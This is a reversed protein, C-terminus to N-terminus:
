NKRRKASGDGSEIDDDGNTPRKLPQIDQVDMTTDTSPQGDQADMTADTSQQGDQANKTADTSQQGDVSTDKQVDEPQPELFLEPLPLVQRELGLWFLFLHIKAKELDTRHDFDFEMRQISYPFPPTGVESQLRTIKLLEGIFGNTLGVVISKRSLQYLDLAVFPYKVASAYDDATFGSRGNKTAKPYHKLELVTLLQQCDEAQIRSREMAVFDPALNSHYKSPNSLLCGKSHSDLWTYGTEPTLTTLLWSYVEQVATEMVGKEGCHKRPNPSKKKGKKSGRSSAEPDQETGLLAALFESKFVSDTQLDETEATFENVFDGGKLTEKECLELFIELLGHGILLQQTIGRWRLLLQRVKEDMKADKDESEGEPSSLSQRLFGLLQVDSIASPPELASNESKRKQVQDAFTVLGRGETHVQTGQELPIQVDSGRPRFGSGGGDDDDDDVGIEQKGDSADTRKSSSRVTRGSATRTPPALRQSQGLTEALQGLIINLVAELSGHNAEAAVTFETFSTKQAQTSVCGLSSSIISPRDNHLLKSLPPHVSRSPPLILQNSSSKM